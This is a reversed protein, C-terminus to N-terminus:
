LAIKDDMRLHIPLISPRSLSSIPNCQYKNVIESNVFPLNYKSPGLLLNFLREAKCLASDQCSQALGQVSSVIHGPFLLQM